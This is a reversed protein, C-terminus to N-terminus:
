AVKKKSLVKGWPMIWMGYKRRLAVAVLGLGLTLIAISSGLLTVTFWFPVQCAVIVAVICLPLMELIDRKEV